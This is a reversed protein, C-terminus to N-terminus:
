ASKQWFNSSTLTPSAHRGPTFPGIVIGGLLYGLILPQRLWKAVFGGAVAPASYM